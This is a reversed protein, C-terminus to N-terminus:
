NVFPRALTLVAPRMRKLNSYFLEHSTPQITAWYIVFPDTRIKNIFAMSLLPFPIIAKSATIPTMQLRAMLQRNSLDEDIPIAQFAGDTHYTNNSCNVSLFSTEMAFTANSYGELPSPIYV